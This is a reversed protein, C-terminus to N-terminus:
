QPASNLSNTLVEEVESWPGHLRLLTKGGAFVFTQPVGDVGFTRKLQPNDAAYAVLGPLPGYEDEFAKAAGIEEDISVSVIRLEAGWQQELARLKEPGDRCPVCWSAWFYVVTPGRTRVLPVRQGDATRVEITPAPDTDWVGDGVPAAVPPTPQSPAPACALLLLTTGTVVLWRVRPPYEIPAIATAM